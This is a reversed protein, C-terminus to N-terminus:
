LFLHTIVNFVDDVFGPRQPLAASTGLPSTSATPAVKGPTIHITIKTPANMLRLAEKKKLTSSTRKCPIKTVSRAVNKPITMEM